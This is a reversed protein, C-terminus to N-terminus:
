WIKNEVDWIIMEVKYFIKIFRIVGYCEVVDQLYRWIEFGLVYFLFWYFNFVFSYQYCYVLLINFYNIVRVWFFM